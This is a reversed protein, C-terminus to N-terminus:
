ILLQLLPPGHKFSLHFFLFLKFINSVRSTWNWGVTQLSWLHITPLSRRPSLVLHWAHLLLLHRPDSRQWFCRNDDQLACCLHKHLGVVDHQSSDSSSFRCLVLLFDHYSRARSSPLERPLRQPQTPLHVLSPARFHPVRVQGFVDRGFWYTTALM